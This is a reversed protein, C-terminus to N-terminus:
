WISLDLLNQTKNLYEEIKRLRHRKQTFRLIVGKLNINLKENIEQLLILSFYIQSHSTESREVHRNKQTLLLLSLAAFGGKREKKKWYFTVTMGGAPHFRM